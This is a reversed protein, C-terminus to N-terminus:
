GIPWDLGTQRKFNKMSVDLQARSRYTRPDELGNRMVSAMYNREGMLTKLFSDIQSPTGKVKYGPLARGKFLAMLSGVAVKALAQVRHDFMDYVSLDEELVPSLDLILEEM